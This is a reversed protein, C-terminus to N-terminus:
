EGYECWPRRRRLVWVLSLGGVLYGEKVGGEGSGEEFIRNLLM